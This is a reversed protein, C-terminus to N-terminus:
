QMYVGAHIDMLSFNRVRGESDFTFDVLILSKQIEKKEELTKANLASTKEIYDGLFPVLGDETVEFLMGVTPSKAIYENVKEETPTESSNKLFTEMYPFIQDKYKNIVYERTDGIAVDACKWKTDTEADGSVLFGAAKDERYIVSIRVDNKKYVEGISKESEGWAKEIDARDMGYTFTNKGDNISVNNKNESNGCASLVFVSAVLVIAAMIIKKM